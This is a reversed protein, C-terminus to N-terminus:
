RIGVMGTQVSSGKRVPVKEIWFWGRRDSKDPGGYVSRGAELNQKATAYTTIGYFTAFSYRDSAYQGVYTTVNYAYGEPYNATIDTTSIGTSIDKGNRTNSNAVYANAGGILSGALHMPIDNRTNEHRVHQGNSYHHTGEVLSSRFPHPGEPQGHIFKGSGSWQDNWSWRNVYSGMGHAKGEKDVPGTFDWKNNNDNATRLWFKTGNNRATIERMKFSICSPLLFSVLLVVSVLKMAPRQYRSKRM